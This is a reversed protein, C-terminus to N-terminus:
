RNMILKCFLRRNAEDEDQEEATQEGDVAGKLTDIVVFESDKTSDTELSQKSSNLDSRLGQGESACSTNMNDLDDSCTGNQTITAEMDSGNDIESGLHGQGIDTANQSKNQQSNRREPTAFPVEIKHSFYFAM